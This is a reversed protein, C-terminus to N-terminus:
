KGPYASVCERVLRPGRYVLGTLIQVLTAGAAFKEAADAGSMIGGCGILTVENKLMGALTRLVRTARERLPAGSLGGEEDAFPLGEVGERSLTTNAAAVGEMRERRVVDAVDALQPATLDSSIKVTLAVHHGRAERLADRKARMRGLLAGLAEASQMDRLGKTNPSSVNISIYDVYPYVAQLCREYEDAIAERPTERNRGINVGVICRHRAGSAKLNETFAEVGISNFGYRNIVAQAQPIRFLRPRPNGPQPRLTVGGLEIFGFGLSALADAHQAHKDLGAALGIPNKFELGMARVPKELVRGNFVSCVDAAKLTLTHATEPDLSFLLPRALAYLM